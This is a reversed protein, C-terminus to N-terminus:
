AFKKEAKCVYWEVIVSVIVVVFIVILPDIIETTHIRQPSCSIYWRYLTLIVVICLYVRFMFRRLFQNRLFDSDKKGYANERIVRFDRHGPIRWCKEIENIISFRINSNIDMVQGSIVWFTMLMLGGITALLDPVKEEVYPVALAVISLPLIISTFRYLLNDDHKWAATQEKFSEILYLERKSLQDNTNSM